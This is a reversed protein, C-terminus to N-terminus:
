YIVGAEDPSQSLPQDIVEGELAEAITTAILWDKDPTAPSNLWYLPQDPSASIKEIETWNNLINQLTSDSCDWVGNQVTAIKGDIKIRYSM